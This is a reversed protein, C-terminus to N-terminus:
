LCIMMTKAYAVKIPFCLENENYMLPEDDSDDDQQNTDAQFRALRDNNPNHLNLICINLVQQLGVSEVLLYEIITIWLPLLWAVLIWYVSSM